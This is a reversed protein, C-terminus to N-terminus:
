IGSYTRWTGDQQASYGPVGHLCSGDRSSINEPAKVDLDQWCSGSLFFFNRKTSTLEFMSWVYLFLIYTRGAINKHFHSQFLFCSAFSVIQIIKSNNIDKPLDVFWVCTITCHVNHVYIFYIAILTLFTFHMWLFIVLCFFILNISYWSVKCFPCNNIQKVTTTGEKPIEQSNESTAQIVGNDEQPLSVSSITSKPANSSPTTQPTPSLIQKSNAIM